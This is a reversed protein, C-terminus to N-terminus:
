LTYVTSSGDARRVRVPRNAGSGYGVPTGLVENTGATEYLLATSPSPQTAPYTTANAYKVGISPGLILHGGTKDIIRDGNVYGLNMNALSVSGGQIQAAPVALPQDAKYGEFVSFAVSNLQRDPNGSHRFPVWGNRGTLYLGLLNSKELQDCWWIPRGNGPVDDPADANVWAGLAFWESGKPRFPTGRIGHVEWHGTIFVQYGAVGAVDNGIGGNTGYLSISELMAASLSGATQRWLYATANGLQTLNSLLVGQVNGPGTLLPGTFQCNLECPVPPNMALKPGPDALAKIAMGDWGNGFPRSLNYRRLRPNLGYGTQKAAVIAQDWKDSDSGTFMPDDPDIWDDPEVVPPVIVELAPNPLLTYDGVSAILADRTARLGPAVADWAAAASVQGARLTEFSTHMAALNADMSGAVGPKTPRVLNILETMYPELSAMQVAYDIRLREHEDVVQEIALDQEAATATLESAFDEPATMRLPYGRVPGGAM